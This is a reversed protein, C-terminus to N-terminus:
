QIIPKNLLVRLNQVSAAVDASNGAWNYEYEASIVGKFHQRKLEAIVTPINDVGTGWHVDHATASKENLDKFHLQIIHGQLKQLCTVPDLGSRVWHGLDACAGVRNSLGKIHNLLTDPSWYISPKPHNHIAINIKYKDCLKSVMPLDKMKPESTINELGMEKAFEFLAIWDADNDPTIVGYSVWKIGKSKLVSLLQQRKSKDMHYDVTGAIEGGILQKPYAEVYKLQCSDIKDLAQMFSFNKFTWTQAGLKWGLKAEVTQAKSIQITSIGILIMLSLAKGKKSILKM